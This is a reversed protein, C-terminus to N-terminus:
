VNKYENQCVLDSINVVWLWFEEPASM